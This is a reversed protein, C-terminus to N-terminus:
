RHRILLIIHGDLKNPKHNLCENNVEKAVELEGLLM